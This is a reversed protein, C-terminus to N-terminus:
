LTKFIEALLDKKIATRGIGSAQYKTGEPDLNECVKLRTSLSEISFNAETIELRDLLYQLLDFLAQVGVTKKLYSGPQATKWITKDVAYFYNFLIDYIARDNSNLYFSRLPLDLIKPLVGRGVVINVPQRIEYRDDKPKKSILKLIGDVMTAMSVRLANIAERSEIKLAEAAPVICGKLPSDEATNLLRAIYVALTEPAWYKPEREQVDFGFLEYALSRDVKKQNFNITAFVYAHYPTPLELFVVCLLEMDRHPAEAELLRFAHLRHQGDIISATPYDM